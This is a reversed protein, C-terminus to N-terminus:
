RKTWITSVIRDSNSLSSGVLAVPKGGFVMAIGAGDMIVAQSGDEYTVVDGVCAVRLNGIRFDSGSTVCGGRETRAGITALAYKKGKREQQDSM